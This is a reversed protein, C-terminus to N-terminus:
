QMPTHDGKAKARQKAIAKGKRTRREKESLGKPLIKEREPYNHWHIRILAAEFEQYNKPQEVQEGNKGCYEWAFSEIADMDREFPEIIRKSVQRSEAMVDEYKPLTPCSALLTRVGIIDGNPKYYNMNKHESIKRELYYSNPEYHPNHGLMGSPYPMVPYSKILEFYSEHFEFFVLGKKLNVGGSPALYLYAWGDKGEHELRTRSLVEAGERMQTMADKRDKICRFSMYEDISLSM